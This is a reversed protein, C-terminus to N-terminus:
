NLVRERSRLLATAGDRVGADDDRLASRRRRSSLRGRASLPGYRVATCLCRFDATALGMASQRLRVAQDRTGGLRWASTPTGTASSSRSCWADGTVTRHAPCRFRLTPLWQRRSRVEHRRPQSTRLLSTATPTTTTRWELRRRGRSAPRGRAVLSGCRSRDTRRGTWSWETAALAFISGCRAPTTPTSAVSTTPSPRM